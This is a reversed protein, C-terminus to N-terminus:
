AVMREAMEAVRQTAGSGGLRSRVEVFARRQLSAEESGADLLPAVARALVQPTADSQLFEPCVEREAILNVLGVHPVRVVRRAVAHTMPHMRYAVVMPTGAIAAELTATGSKCLVADAAALVTTSNMRCYQFESEGPYDIEDAAAVLVRLSPQSESLRKAADRFCPWLRNVESKRSGPLLGLVTVEDPLNLSARAEAISPLENRDLLPHGVFDAIVGRSRYYDEEFPLVAAVQQVYKRIARLRWSGWAWLQPAIYYLVPVGFDAAAAAVRLHFGPYDVLIVLDYLGAAFRKRLRM